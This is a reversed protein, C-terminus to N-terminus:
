RKNENTLPWRAVIDYSPSTKNPYSRALVFEKIDWPTYDINIASLSTDTKKVMTLHPIYAKKEPLCGSAIKCLELQYALAYLTAPPHNLGLWCSRAKPWHNLENIIVEFPEIEIRSAYQKIRELAELSVNGVYALTLHIDELHVISKSFSHPLSLILQQLRKALTLNPWLAFFYRASNSANEKIIPHGDCHNILGVLAEKVAQKQIAQRSGDFHYCRSVVPKGNGAWAIWVYGIPKQESGGGPGAIGTIAVSVDAYSKMLAGSAMAEACAQSVAGEKSIIAPSVGLMEEKAENSYTVFGREFWSSTNPIATMISALRGGTCSEAVACSLHRAVLLSGLRKVLTSLRQHTVM